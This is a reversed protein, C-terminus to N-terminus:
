YSWQQPYITREYDSLLRKHEPELLEYPLMSLLPRWLLQRKPLHGCSIMIHITAAWNRMNHEKLFIDCCMGVEEKRRLGGHEGPGPQPICVRNKATLHGGCSFYAEGLCLAWIVKHNETEKGAIQYQSDTNVSLQRHTKNYTAHKPGFM